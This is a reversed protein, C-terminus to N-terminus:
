APAKEKYKTQLHKLKWSIESLWISGVIIQLHSSRILISNTESRHKLTISLLLSSNCTHRQRNCQLQNRPGATESSCSLTWGFEHHQWVFVREAGWQGTSGGGVTKYIELTTTAKQLGKSSTNLSKKPWGSIHLQLHWASYFRSIGSCPTAKRGRGAALSTGLLHNRSAGTLLQLGTAASLEGTRPWCNGHPSAARSFLLLCLASNQSALKHKSDHPFLHTNALLGSSLGLFYVNELVASKCVHQQQM